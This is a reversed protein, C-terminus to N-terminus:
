GFAGTAFQNRPISVKCTDLTDICQRGYEHIRGRGGLVRHDRVVM